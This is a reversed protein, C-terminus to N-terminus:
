SFSRFSIGKYEEEPLSDASEISHNVVSYGGWNSMAGAVSSIAMSEERDMYAAALTQYCDFPIMTTM